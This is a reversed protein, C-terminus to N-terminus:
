EGPLRIRWPDLDPQWLPRRKKVVAPPKQADSAAEPAVDVAPNWPLQDKNISGTKTPSAVIGTKSKQQGPPQEAPLKAVTTSRKDAERQAMVDYEPLTTAMSKPIVHVIKFGADKMETILKSIAGATSPQIDHFLIIGKRRQKLRSMVTRLVTGPNRTRFDQSDIDISMSAINREALYAHAARSEGLYPFRFFPAVPAGVALAVASLGLEIEREAAERKANSLKLHSWTHLAITNGRRAVEKLTAPDSLAMRGVSFFTARTCHRDLADLIPRTYRSLPGDDFTLVVEGDQLFDTGKHYPSHGFKPGGTADIEVIRSLGIADTRTACDPPLPVSVTPAPEALAPELMMSFALALAACAQRRNIM